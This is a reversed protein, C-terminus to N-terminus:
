ADLAPTDALAASLFPELVALDVAYSHDRAADYSFVDADQEHTVM